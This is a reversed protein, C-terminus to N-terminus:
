AHLPFNSGLILGAPAILTPIDAIRTGRLIFSIIKFISSSNAHM